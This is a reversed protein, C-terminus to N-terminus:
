NKKLIYGMYMINKDKISINLCIKHFQNMEQKKKAQIKIFNRASQVM